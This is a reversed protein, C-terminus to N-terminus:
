IRREAVGEMADADKERLLGAGKLGMVLGKGKPFRQPETRSGRHAESGVM